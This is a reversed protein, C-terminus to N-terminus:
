IIISSSYFIYTTLQFWNFFNFIFALFQQTQWVGSVSANFTFSLIQCYDISSNIIVGLVSNDEDKLVLYLVQFISDKLDSFFKDLGVKEDQIQLKDAFKTGKISDDM